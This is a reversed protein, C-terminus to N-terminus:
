RSMIIFLEHYEIIYLIMFLMVIVANTTCIIIIIVHMRTEHMHCINHVSITILTSSSLVRNIIHFNM